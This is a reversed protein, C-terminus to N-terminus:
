KSNISLAMAQPNEGDKKDIYHKINGGFNITSKNDAKIDAELTAERGIDLNSNKLDVKGIKFVRHDWDPQELHSSSKLGDM